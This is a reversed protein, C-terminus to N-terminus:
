IKKVPVIERRLIHFFFIEDEVNTYDEGLTGYHRFRMICVSEREGKSELDVKISELIRTIVSKGLREFSIQSEQFKRCSELSVPSDFFFRDRLRRQCKIHYRHPNM